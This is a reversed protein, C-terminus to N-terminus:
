KVPHAAFYQDPSAAVEKVRGQVNNDLVAVVAAVYKPREHNASWDEFPQRQSPELGHNEPSQGDESTPAIPVTKNNDQGQVSFLRDSLWVIVFTLAIFPVGFSVISTWNLTIGIGAAGRSLDRLVLWGGTSLAFLAVGVAVTTVAGRRLAHQAM